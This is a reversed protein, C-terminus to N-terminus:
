VYHKKKCKKKEETDYVDIGYYLNDAFFQEFTNFILAEKSEGKM